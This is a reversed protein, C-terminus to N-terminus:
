KGAPARQWGGRYPCFINEIPGFQQILKAATKAGIGEVGRINDSADGLM